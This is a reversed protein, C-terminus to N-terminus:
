SPPENTRTKAVSAEHVKNTARLTEGARWMQPPHCWSVGALNMITAAPVRAFPDFEHIVRDRGGDDDAVSAM